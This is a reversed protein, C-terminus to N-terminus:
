CSSLGVTAMPKVGFRADVSSGNMEVSVVSGEFEGGSVTIERAGITDDVDSTIVLQAGPALSAFELSVVKQGDVVKPLSKLASGGEAAEFPQFVEVGEGQGSTDFILKGASETLDLTVLFDTRACDGINSVILKDKPAGEDFEVRIDAFAPQGLALVAFAFVSNRM